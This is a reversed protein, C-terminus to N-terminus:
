TYLGGNVALVQGTIYAAGPSAFFAVAAAVDEPTGIRGLPISAVIAESAVEATMDTAIFGPAVANVTVNRPGLELALAKTAGILGAKSAAYNVQGANGRQGSLSTLTIIRGSRRRLMKRVVPRTVSYFGGLNTGVVSDWSARSMMAFMGDRTVGANNVLVDPCGHAEILGDVAAEAEPSAIDLAAAHATRGGARLAEVVVEAAEQQRHYTVVLDFGQRGLELAIARGIGRSAGTVWAWGM